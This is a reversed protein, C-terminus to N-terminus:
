MTAVTQFIYETRYLHLIIIIIVVGGWGGGRCVFSEPQNIPIVKNKWRDLHRM